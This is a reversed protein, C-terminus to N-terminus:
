RRFGTTDANEFLFVSGPLRKAAALWSWWSVENPPREGIMRLRYGPIAPYRHHLEHADFGFLIWRSIWDPFRLSRTYRVQAAPSLPAVDRGASLRQPIHTHQSLILPDQLAFSALLALAGLRLADGAGLLYAALGYLALLAVANAVLARRQRAAPFMALLRRLNWYNGLRYAISVLPLWTRWAIDAALREVRSRRRPALGATTPDLDQWGTWLHHLGHVRRWSAFPILAFFGAVHGALRNATRTRFLTCHGAEHLLVFWQLLAIALLLQGALWRPWSGTLSLAAGALTALAALALLGSGRADSPGLAGPPALQEAAPPPDGADRADIM